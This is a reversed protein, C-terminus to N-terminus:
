FDAVVHIERRSLAPWEATYWSLFGRDETVGVPGHNALTRMTRDGPHKYTNKLGFSFVSRAHNWAIAPTDRWAANAGHHPVQLLGFNNWRAATLRRVLEARLTPEMTIDGTYLISPAFPGISKLGSLRAKTTAQYCIEGRRLVRSIGVPGTYTILSIENRGKNGDGFQNEDRYIRRLNRLLVAYNQDHGPLALFSNVMAEVDAQLQPLCGCWARRNFFLFEWLGACVVRARGRFRRARSPVGGQTRMPEGDGMVMPKTERPDFQFGRPEPPQVPDSDPSDGPGDVYIIEGVETMSQLYTTPDALFRLYDPPLPGRRAVAFLLRDAPTAYPLVICGVRIRRLLKSLGNVHDADLHSIVLVDLSRRQGLRQRARSIERHLPEPAGTVGCDHVWSVVECRDPQLRVHGQAFLGQGVPRFVHSVSGILPM